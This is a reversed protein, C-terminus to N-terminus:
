GVYIVFYGQVCRLSEVLYLQGIKHRLNGLPGSASCRLGYIWDEM